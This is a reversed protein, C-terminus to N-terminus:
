RNYLQRGIGRIEAKADDQWIDLLSILMSFALLIFLGEMM